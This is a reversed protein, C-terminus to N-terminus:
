EYFQPSRKRSMSQPGDHNVGPSWRSQDTAADHECDVGYIRSAAGQVIAPLTPLGIAGVLISGLLRRRGRMDVELFTM